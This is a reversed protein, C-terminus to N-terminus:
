VVDQGRNRIYTLTGEEQSIKYKEMVLMYNIINNPADSFIKGTVFLDEIILNEPDIISSMSNPVTNATSQTWTSWGLERNDDWNWDGHTLAGGMLTVDETTLKANCSQTSNGTISKPAIIFQIVRFATDFCGDFLQIRQSVYDGSFQGKIVYTDNKKRPLPTIAM